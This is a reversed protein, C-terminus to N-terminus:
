RSKYQTFQEPTNNKQPDFQCYRCPDETPKFTLYLCDFSRGFDLFYQRCAKVVGKYSLYISDKDLITIKGDQDIKTFQKM